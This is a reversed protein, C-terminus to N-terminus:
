DSNRVILIEGDGRVEVECDDYGFSVRGASSREDFLDGLAEVDVVGYIPERDLLRKEDNEYTESLAALLAEGLSEDADARYSINRDGAADSSGGSDVM